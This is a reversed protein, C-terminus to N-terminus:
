VFVWHPMLFVKCLYFSGVGIPFCMLELEKKIEKHSAPDASLKTTGKVLASHRILAVTLVSFKRSPWKTATSFNICRNM